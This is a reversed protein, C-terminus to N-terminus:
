QDDKSRPGAEYRGHSSSKRNLIHSVIVQIEGFAVLSRAEAHPVTHSTHPAPCRTQLLAGTREAVMVAM